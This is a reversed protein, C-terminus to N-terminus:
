AWHINPEIEDLIGIVEAWDYFDTQISPDDIPEVTAAPAMSALILNIEEFDPMTRDEPPTTLFAMLRPFHNMTM